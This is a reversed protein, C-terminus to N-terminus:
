ALRKENGVWQIAPRQGYVAWNLLLSLTLCSVLTIFMLHIYHLDFPAYIPSFEFSVSAYLIVGFVVSFIGAGAHVNKFALGLIFVSLIPMSLLGYLQQILNIISDAEKYVLVLLLSLVTMLITVIGSLKQVNPTKNFYAEHIDCVYLATASNLNSNFTTLVAAAMAAAFVGSLWSPLLDSVITGYATDGIDGYLKYSVIGPIVIISPVILLRIAAAAFVGKQAEKINPAAMARQTIVQNTGWYFIQIFIMGTLLTHWPIPSDDGGILTLREAPIGEFNYDVANLALVVILVAMFLLIVGSYTDSVAVARLGGFIAYLAGVIAFIAAIYIIPLEVNFMNQMFLSGTYIVAPCFILASGLFFLCSIVARIHKNNYRKELLETTTTCNYQYYVPLFVKALVFLGAVASFEWLALLAMQNGNMGVLQDTSLNTLTISGAVFYWALGGGALFYEKSQDATTHGKGRCQLYTLFAILLTVFLFVGIQILNVTM